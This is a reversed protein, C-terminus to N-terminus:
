PGACTSALAWPLLAAVIVARLADATARTLAVAVEDGSHMRYDHQDDTSSALYATASAVQAFTGWAVDGFRKAAPYDIGAEDAVYWLRSRHAECPCDVWARVAGLAMLATDPEGVTRPRAFRSDVVLRPAVALYETLALAARVRADKGWRAFGAVFTRLDPAGANAGPLAIRAAPYWLYAALELRDSALDGVRVRTTLFAAEDVPLDTEKWRRELERLSEDSM